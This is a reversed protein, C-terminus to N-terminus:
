TSTHMLILHVTKRQLYTNLAICLASGITNASTNYASYALINTNELKKDTIQSAFENDSGNANNIDAIFYPTKPTQFEGKFSNIIDGLVLDGQESAFNNIVM